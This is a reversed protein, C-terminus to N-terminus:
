WRGGLTVQAGTGGVQPAVWLTSATKRSRDGKGRQSPGSLLVLAAGAGLFALGAGFAVTSITASTYAEDNLDVEAQSCGGQQCGEDVDGARSLTMAGFVAGVGIGVLGVGGAVFGLTRLSVTGGEPTEPTAVPGKPAVAKPPPPPPPAKPADELAPIAVRKTSPGADIRLRESWPKKGPATAEVTHEGPDVPMGTGAAAAASLEKGNLRLVLGPAPAAVELALRSLQAELTAARKRAFEAREPKGAADSMSAAEILEVWASATKGEQEHCIALNLLTGGSPDLRQSEALKGCAEPFQEADMLKRGDQFLAEALAKEEPTPQRPAAQQALAPATTALLLPVLIRAGARRTRQPRV